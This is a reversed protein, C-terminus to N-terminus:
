GNQEDLWDPFDKFAPTGWTLLWQGIVEHDVGYGSAYGAKAATVADVALDREADLPFHAEHKMTCSM